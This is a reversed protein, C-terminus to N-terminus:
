DQKRMYDEHKLSIEEYQYKTAIIAPFDLTQISVQYHQRQVQAGMYCTIVTKM